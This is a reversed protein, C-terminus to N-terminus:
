ASDPRRILVVALASAVLLWALAGGLSKAVKREFSVKRWAVLVKDHLPKPTQQTRLITKLSESM